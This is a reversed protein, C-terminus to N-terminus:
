QYLLPIFDNQLMRYVYRRLAQEWMGTEMAHLLSDVVAFVVDLEASVTAYLLNCAEYEDFRSIDLVLPLLLRVVEVYGHRMAYKLPQMICGSTWCFPATSSALSRVGDPDNARVAGWLISASTDSESCADDFEVDLM